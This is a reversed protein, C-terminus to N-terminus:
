VLFQVAAAFILFNNVIDPPVLANIRNPDTADREVILDSKFQDINEVLGAAAWDQALAILEARIISPTVIAQGFGFPTGDNALKMRPFKQAIRQRMSYRLYSVTLTTNLDLFATSPYGFSDIQWTTIARDIIVTGSADVRTTSMGDRLLNDRETRTWRDFQAPAVVGTLPLTGFQRAPDISGYYAVVGGYIAATVWPPTLANRIPLISVLGSNRSSGLTAAANLSQSTSAIGVGDIQLMPGFRRMLEGELSSLNAADTYATILTSYKTDGIAAWVASIDPNGTGAVGVAITATVGAPTQDGQFFNVRVDIDNGCVGKHRASLTVVGAVAAASVPLDPLANIAAVINAGIATATDGATVGVQVRTGAIMWALTGSATAPGALTITKTAVVGGALDDLAIAWCETQQNVGMLGALMQALMSGRGFAQAAQPASMIRTAIGANVLGGALRQGIVLIKTQAPPLGSQAKSTDVEVFQGPTRVDVPIANFSIV